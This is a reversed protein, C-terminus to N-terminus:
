EPLLESVPTGEPDILKVTRESASVYDRAGDVRLLAGLTAFLDAVSVPRQAVQEGREDTEGIVTGGKLGAGALVSCFSRAFHGRGDGGTVTPTRGFEGMCVILTEDLRGRTALDDILTAFAPDLARCLEATRTFNDSHTDWGPLVVEVAPVGAEILRRALLVGEGFPTRGYADRLADPERDLEALEILRSDMLGRARERETEDRQAIEKGGNRQFEADIARRLAERTTARPGRPAGGATLGEIRTGAREIWFADCAAGLESHAAPTGGVQVFAPLEAREAGSDHAVISGLTPYRVSPNPAYGCHLLEQARQHTGERSTVTRIVNLKAARRALQPLHESMSWGAVDTALTKLPSRDPFAPKPDFTDIQSPGGDLWLLVLQKKRIATTVAGDQGQAPAALLQLLSPAALAAAGGRLLAALLERRDFCRFPQRV